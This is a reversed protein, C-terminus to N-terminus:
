TGSRSPTIAEDGAHSPERPHSPWAASGPGTDQASLSLLERPGGETIRWVKATGDDSATVLRSSDPSWDVDQITATHGHLTFRSTGTGAEWLRASGDKSSTAIWRGDPSWAVDRLTVQPGRPQVAEEGSSVDVVVAPPAKALDRATRRRPQVLHPAPLSPTSRASRGDPHRPGSGSWRRAVLRRLVIRRPQVVAGSASTRPGEFSWSSRAPPRTGSGPPATTEPPPSCRATTTSPSTTSTADDHGHFSRVSEGTGADRIDVLGTDEPGETVFITGDPSWDLAGGVGPCAAARDAVRDRRQHLAEEAEPLASGDDPDAGSSPRSRWCSAGNPTWGRPEGRGRGGAGTGDAM